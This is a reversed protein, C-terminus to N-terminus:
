RKGRKRKVEWPFNLANLMDIKEQSLKGDRYKCRLYSIWVSISHDGYYPPKLTGNKQYFNELIKYKEMWVYSPRGPFREKSKNTTDYTSRWPFGIKELAEIHEQSLKGRRKYTRQAGVWRILDRHEISGWPFLFHGHEKEYRCLKHYMKEWNQKRKRIKEPTLRHKRRYEEVLAINTSGYFPKRSRNSWVEFLSGIKKKASRWNTEKIAKQLTQRHEKNGKQAKAWSSTKCEAPDKEANMFVPRTLIFAIADALIEENEEVVYSRFRQRWLSGFRGHQLNYFRAYRSAFLRVYEQLDFLKGRYEETLDKYQLSNPSELAERFTKGKKDGFYREVLDALITDSIHLPAPIRILIAYGRNFVTYTLIEVQCFEATDALLKELKKQEKATLDPLDQKIENSIHYIAEVGQLKIRLERM